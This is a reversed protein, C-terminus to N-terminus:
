MELDLRVRSRGMWWRGGLYALVVLLGIASLRWVSGRALALDHGLATWALTGPLMGIATALIFHSFRMQSVGALYSIWDFSILPVLRATLVIWFGDSQSLRNAQDLRKGRLFRAVADQGLWRALWFSVSGGLIGGVWSLLTGWWIGFVIGNAAAVLSGPLPSIVAQLIMLLTSILPAWVGFGRLYEAVGTMSEVSFAAWIVAIWGPWLATMIAAVLAAAGILLLLKRM